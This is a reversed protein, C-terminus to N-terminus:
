APAKSAGAIQAVQAALGEIDKQMKTLYGETGRSMLEQNRELDKVRERLAAVQEWLADSM